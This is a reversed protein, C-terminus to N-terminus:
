QSIDPVTVTEIREIVKGKSRKLEEEIRRLAKAIVIFKSDDRIRVSLKSLPKLQAIQVATLGTKEVVYVFTKPRDFSTLYYALSNGMDECELKDKGIETIKENRIEELFRGYNVLFM